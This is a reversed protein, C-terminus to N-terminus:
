MQRLTAAILFSPRTRNFAREDSNGPPVPDVTEGCVHCLYYDVDADILHLYNLQGDILHSEHDMIEVFLEVNGCKGCRLVPKLDSRRKLQSVRSM